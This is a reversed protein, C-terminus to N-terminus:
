GRERGGVCDVGLGEAGGHAFGPGLAGDFGAALGEVAHDVLDREGLAAGVDVVSALVGVRPKTVLEWGAGRVPDSHRLSRAREEPDLQHGGIEGADEGLPATLLTKLGSPDFPVRYHVRVLRPEHVEIGTVFRRVIERRRHLSLQDFSAAFTNSFDDLLAQNRTLARSYIDEQVMLELEAELGSKKETLDAIHQRCVAPELGDGIARYFNQIRRQCDAIGRQLSAQDTTYARRRREIHETVAERIAAKGDPTCLRDRLHGLVASEIWEKPVALSTCVSTGRSLYGRCMYVPRPARNGKRRPGRVVGYFVHGCRCCRIMGALLNKVPRDDGTAKRAIIAADQDAVVEGEVPEDAASDPQGKTPPFPRSAALKLYRDYQERPVLATHTDPVVIWDERTTRQRGTRGRKKSRRWVSDGAYVPNNLISGIRGPSWTGGGPSPVKRHNLIVAIARCGKGQEAALEFIERILAIESDDGPELRSYERAGQQVKVVKYGFPTSGGNFWGREANEQMGKLVESSLNMSFFQALTELIGELLVGQATDPDFDESVSRVKVEKRSLLEKFIACERRDRSFRDLKHVLLVDIHNKLCFKIMEQFGPRLAAPAYASVGEDSFEQVFKHDLRETLWRAMAKSQAPLSLDNNAQDETSVRRYTVVRIM